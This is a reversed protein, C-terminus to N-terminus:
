WKEIYQWCGMPLTSKPHGKKVREDNLAICYERDAERRNADADLLEQILPSWAPYALFLLMTSVLALSFATYMNRRAEERQVGTDAPTEQTAIIPWFGLKGHETMFYLGASTWCEEGPKLEWPKKTHKEEARKAEAAMKWAAEEYAKNKKKEEEARKAEAAMKEAYERYEAEAKKKTEAERKTKEAKKRASEAKEKPLTKDYRKRQVPDSLCRYAEMVKMFDRAAHRNNSNTDPHTEKARKHFARKIQRNTANRSIGLIEYYNGM